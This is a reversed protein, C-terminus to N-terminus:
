LDFGEKMLHEKLGERSRYLSVRVKSETFGCYSAIRKISDCYYYRGVFIVRADKSLTQLYDNISKGLLQLEVEDEVTQGMTVCETLEDLSLAYQSGERKQRHKKRYRDISLQRTIKGLYNSLVVPRNPPMTNWAKLYTDSVSEDCDEWDALVNWAIKRLYNRYKKDTQEIATENREWYLAIIAEDNM